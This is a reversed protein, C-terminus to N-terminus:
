HQMGRLAAFAGDRLVPVVDSTSPRGAIAVDPEFGMAVLEQGSACSLLHELPRDRV